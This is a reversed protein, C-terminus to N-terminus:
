STIGSQEWVVSPVVNCYVLSSGFYLVDITNKDEKRYSEWTAGYDARPPMLLWASIYSGLIVLLASLLVPLIWKRKAM